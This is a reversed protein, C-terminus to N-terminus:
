SFRSGKKSTSWRLLDRSVVGMGTAGGGGGGGRGGFFVRNALGRTGGRRRGGLDTGLSSSCHLGVCFFIVRYRRSVLVATLHRNSPSTCPECPSSCFNRVLWNLGQWAETREHSNRLTCLKDFSEFFECLNTRRHWKLSREWATVSKNCSITTLPITDASYWPDRNRSIPSWGAQQGRLTGVGVRDRRALTNIQRNCTEVSLLSSGRVRPIHFPYTDCVCQVHVHPLFYSYPIEGVIIIM